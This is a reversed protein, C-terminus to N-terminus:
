RGREPDPTGWGKRPSTRPPTEEAEGASLHISEGTHRPTGIPTVAHAGAHAVNTYSGSRGGLGHGLGSAYGSGASLNSRSSNRPLEDAARMRGFYGKPDYLLTPAEGKRDAHELHALVAEDYSPIFLLTWLIAFASVAATWLFTGRLGIGDILMGFSYSAVIAGLKGCGASLGHCTARVATPFIEAPIAYTTTGPGSYDFILQLSYLTVFLAPQQQIQDPSSLALALILYVALMGALGVLQTKKRGLHPILYISLFCGPLGICSTTLVGLTTAANCSAASPMGPGLDNLPRTGNVLTCNPNGLHLQGIVDDSYLGLGYDVVDYILWSGMTGLLPRWYHRLTAFTGPEADAREAHSYNSNRRSAYDGLSAGGLGVSYFSSGPSFNGSSDDYRTASQYPSAARGHPEPGAMPQPQPQFMSGPISSPIAMTPIAGANVPPHDLGRPKAARRKAVVRCFADSDRVNRYRLTVSLVALAAGLGFAFRWTIGPPVGSVQCTYVVLAALIPGFGFMTFVLALHAGSQGVSAHEATHAASLPYEGGIGVGMLFRFGILLTWIGIHAEGFDQACASGLSGIFTLLGSLLLLKRRGLKDAASGLCVQGVMAGALSSSTIMSRQWSTSFDEVPYIAGLENRVLNIIAFSYSDTLLGIGAVLVKHAREWM